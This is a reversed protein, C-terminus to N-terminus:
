FVTLVLASGCVCFIGGDCVRCCVAWVAMQQHTKFPSCLAAKAADAPCPAHRNKWQMAGALALLIGAVSFVWVKHTSLWVLQPVTTVLGALAAGAGLAVFLAPLTCCVLTSMSSFLSIATLFLPSAGRKFRKDPHTALFSKKLFRLRVSNYTRSRFFPRVVGIARSFLNVSTGHSKATADAM